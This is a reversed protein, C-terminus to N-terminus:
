FRNPLGDLEKKFEQYEEIIRGIDDGTKSKLVEDLFKDMKEYDEPDRLEKTEIYNSNYIAIAYGTGIKLENMSSIEYSSNYIDAEALGAPDGGREVNGFADRVFHEYGLASM